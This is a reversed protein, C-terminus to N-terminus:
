VSLPPDTVVKSGTGYDGPRIAGDTTSKRAKDIAAGAQALLSWDDTLEKNRGFRTSNAHSPKDFGGDARAM